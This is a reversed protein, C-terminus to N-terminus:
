PSQQQKLKNQYKDLQIHLTQNIVKMGLYDSNLITLKQNQKQIEEQYRSEQEQLRQELKDVSEVRIKIDKLEKQCQQLEQTQNTLIQEKITLEVQIAKLCKQTEVLERKLESIKTVLKQNEEQQLILEDVNLPNFYTNQVCNKIKQNNGKKKYSKQSDKPSTMTEASSISPDKSQLEYKLQEIEENLEKIKKENVKSESQIFYYDSVLQDYQKRQTNLDISQQNYQKQLQKQKEISIQWEQAINEMKDRFEEGVQVSKNDQEVTIQTERNVNEKSIQLLEKLRRNEFDYDRLVLKYQEVEKYMEDQNKMSAQHYFQTETQVLKSIQEKVKTTSEQQKVSYNMGLDIETQSTESVNNYVLDAQTNQSVKIMQTKRMLDQQELKLLLEKKQQNSQLIMNKFSLIQKEYQEISKDKQKIIENLLEQKKDECQIEKDVSVKTKDKSKSLILENTLREVQERLQQEENINPKRNQMSYSELLNRKVTEGGSEFLKQQRIHM